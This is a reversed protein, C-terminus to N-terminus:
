QEAVEEGVVKLLSHLVSATDVFAPARSAYGSSDSEVAASEESAVSADAAADDGQELALAVAEGAPASEDAALDDSEGISAEEVAAIPASAAVAMTSQANVTGVAERLQAGLSGSVEGAREVLPAADALDLGFLWANRRIADANGGADRLLLGHADILKLGGDVVEGEADKLLRLSFGGSRALTDADGLYTADDRLPRQPDGYMQGTAKRAATVPDGSAMIAQWDRTDTNSGVVGYILEAADDFGAGSADMFEKINPRRSASLEATTLLSVPVAAQSAAAAQLADAFQSGAAPSEVRTENRYAATVARETNASSIDM